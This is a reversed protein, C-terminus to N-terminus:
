SLSMYESWQLERPLSEDSFEIHIVRRKQNNITRSSAHLLLPKMIMIGGKRVNCITESSLAWDILEPRSIGELHSGPILRLAGNDENTDDLHLRITYNRKLIDIPPQVSFQDQKITWPGFGETAVKEKVSITLDQHYAVFWNSGGPKDFYISKVVFYEHGFVTTIIAKLKESFIFPVVDPVEKLFQRVAFLDKSKRFTPKSSNAMSIAENILEVEKESFVDEVVAFGNQLLEDRCQKFNM